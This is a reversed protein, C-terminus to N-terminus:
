RGTLASPAADATKGHRELAYRGLEAFQQGFDHTGGGLPAKFFCATHEMVGGEGREAALDALDALACIKRMLDLKM